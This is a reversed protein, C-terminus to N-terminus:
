RLINKLADQLQKKPDTPQPATPAPESGTAPAQQQPATKRQNLMEGLKEVAGKQIAVKVIETVDPKCNKPDIEGRCGVPITYDGINYTKQERTARSEDVAIKLDYKWTMDNLRALTGGGTVKFGPALLLFDKNSVVGSNFDLGATISDFKTEKGQDVKGLRKDEVMMEVQELVQRVDIGRLIGQEVNLQGQGNLSNKITNTDVGAGFVALNIDTKGTLSAAKGTLDMLLSEIQVDKLNSNLTVRPLKGTADIGVDGAYTGTYLNAAMPDLKVKGDKGNLSLVVDSLKMGSFVLNGAKVRGSANLSRLTEVPLQAPPEDTKSKKPQDKEKPPLYRDLNMQDVDLAFQVADGVAFTGNVHTDDLVVALKSVKFNNTPGSFETALAVYGFVEPDATLPPTKNIQRMFKRLDFPDVNIQGAVEPTQRFKTIGVDGKVNLGLGTLSLDNLDLREQDLNLRSAANLVMKVPSNPIQKGAFTAQLAMPEFRIDDRDGSVGANFDVAQLVEALDKQDLATLVEALDNGTLSLKGNVSGKSGEMGQAKLQGALKFGLTDVELSPLDINGQKLDADFDSKIIFARNSVKSLQRGYQSLASDEGTAEGAVQLWAPLNPGTADIKGKVSPSSTQANRATLHGNVRSGLANVVLVPVDVDGSQLDADFETQITFVRDSFQDMAKGYRTLPAGTGAQFQGLVRLLTPLDPGNANLKGNFGPTATDINRASLSGTVTAGLLRADLATVNVDGRDLDADVAATVTYNRDPLAAIQRALAKVDLVRFPLSLDNGAVKLEAQIAPKGTQIATANLSGTLHIGLADLQLGSIAATADAMNVGINAALAIQSQDDPVNKGSLTGNLQLPTINYSQGELDYTLTGTLKLETKLDPKNSAGNLSLLLQIPEGFVLEGTTMDLDTVTYITETAADRWNLRADQIDVGGLILSSLDMAQLNQITDDVEQGKSASDSTKVLNIVAGHIKITDIIYQERLLPMTKVRIQAHDLHLFPEDGPDGPNTLTADNIELGLWPYYSIQLNGNLTLERGTEARVRSAIMEKYDNPDLTAVYVVLALAVVVILGVIGILLTIIKKM